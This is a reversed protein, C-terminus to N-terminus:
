ILTRLSSKVEFKGPYNAMKVELTLSPCIIYTFQGWSGRFNLVCNKRQISSDLIKFNAIFLTM